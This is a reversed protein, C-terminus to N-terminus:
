RPLVALLLGDAARAIAPAVDTDPCWFAPHNRQERGEEDHTVIAPCGEIKKRRHEGAPTPMGSLVWRVDRDRRRNRRRQKKTRNRM